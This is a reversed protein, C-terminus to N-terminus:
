NDPGTSKSGSVTPESCWQNRLIGLQEVSTQDLGLVETLLRRDLEQRIPDRYAENTPLLSEHCLDNFIEVASSIQGKSLKTFDLIPINPIAKM